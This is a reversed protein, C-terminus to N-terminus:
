HKTTEPYYCHLDILIQPFVLVIGTSPGTPKVAIRTGYHYYIYPGEAPFLKVLTKPPPPPPPPRHKFSLPVRFLRALAWVKDGFYGQM